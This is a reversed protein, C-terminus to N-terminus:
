GTMLLGHVFCVLLNTLLAVFFFILHAIMGWRVYILQLM